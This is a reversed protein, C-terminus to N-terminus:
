ALNVSRRLRDRNDKIWRPLEDAPMPKGAYYGQALDCGLKRLLMWDEVREVGEAVTMIGLRKGMEISSELIVRRSQHESAGHVFARDIKLETFPCRSLQQMSSYGVGYDDMALGFGKLRLRALNGLAASLNSMVMTETVELILLHAPVHYRQAMDAIRDALTADTLSHAALNFSVSLHLGHKQWAAMQTLTQALLGMTFPDILEPTAEIQPIFRGPTIIGLRSHSWRALAEAGKTMGSALLIKPQFFPVIESNHIAQAIEDESFSPEETLPRVGLSSEKQLVQQLLQNLALLEVPKKLTGLLYIDRNEQAMNEVVELLKPDRATMVILHRAHGKEAVHHILEIGDMGPMDLDTILFDVPDTQELLKLAQIGDEAELVHNFGLSQLQGCVYERQISSDEVVLVRYTSWTSM